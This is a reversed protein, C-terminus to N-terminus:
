IIIQFDYEVKHSLNIVKNHVNYLQLRVCIILFSIMKKEVSQSETTRDLISWIFNIIYLLQYYRAPIINYKYPSIM